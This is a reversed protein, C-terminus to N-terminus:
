FSISSRVGVLFADNVAQKGTKDPVNGGPHVVYQIDPQISWWPSVAVFYNLEFVTEADRIPYGASGASTDRDLGAARASIRSHSVAMTLTDDKRNEFLGEIAIGADVGWSVRNRDSPAVQGRLFASVSMQSSTFFTNDVLGYLAWDGRHTLPEVVSPNALSVVNGVGDRGFRQDAFTGTHYWGGIKLAIAPGGAGDEQNIEYGLEGMLLVGGSTSFTTGHRNCVQPDDQCDNGAPNGSFVGARLVVDPQLYFVALAGPTALPYAPGGSTMDAGNLVPWGFAGNLLNGASKMVSFDEDASLQGIRFLNKNPFEQQVWATFLRTTPLADINSPDGLSGVSDAANRQNVDHIQYVTVHASGGRWHTLKDFDFDASAELRGEYTTQRELGGRLNVIMESAYDLTLTIGRDTLATRAGSWDGTLNGWEWISHPTADAALTPFTLMAFVAIGCIGSGCQSKLRAM